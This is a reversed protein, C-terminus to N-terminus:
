SPVCSFIYHWENKVKANSPSSNDAERRPRNVGSYNARPVWHIPPQTPGLTKRIGGDGLGSALCHVLQTIGTPEM